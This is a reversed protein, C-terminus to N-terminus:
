FLGDIKSLSIPKAKGAIYKYSKTEKDWVSISEKGTSKNVYLTNESGLDPFEDFSVGIRVIEHPSTTIPIWESNYFWLMAKGIVFYFVGNEPAELEERDIDTALIEVQNYFTRKGNYDLAIKRKEQLFIIQQHGIAFDSLKSAKDAVVLNLITKTDAM